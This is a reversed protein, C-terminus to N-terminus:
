RVMDEMTVPVTSDHGLVVMGLSDGVLIIDVCDNMAQLVRLSLPNFMTCSNNRAVQHMACGRQECEHGAAYGVDASGIRLYM